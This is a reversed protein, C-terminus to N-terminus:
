TWQGARPCARHWEACRGRTQLEPAARCTTANAPLHAIADTGQMSGRYHWLWFLDYLSGLLATTLLSPKSDMFKGPSILSRKFAGLSKSHMSRMLHGAAALSPLPHMHEMYDNAPSAVRVSASCMSLLLSPQLCTAIVPPLARSQTSHTCPFMSGPTRKPELSVMSCLTISVTRAAWPVRCTMFRPCPTRTPVGSSFTACKKSTALVTWWRM